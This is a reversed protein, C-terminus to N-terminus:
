PADSAGIETMKAAAERLKSESDILFQASTVIEEGPVVGKLVIVRGGSQLGLEVKRPEFKGPSRVVFVQAESGSRVVAESPIVTVSEQKSAQVTIEVFTEPKLALSPNDFEIRVKVTRTKSEAYPYIYAVQGHFVQGPRAALTMQAEDGVKVWPLEYEFIHAYAWVRSLDAIVYLETAPSVHQGERAGIRTVIGAAPSHIHLTKQPALSAELERIQHEPVDFLELRTRSSQVLEEAGRRIDEVPSNKLTENNKLALVYERQSAVLRPSYLSLLITDKEVQEGTTDVFLEEIWGEVKPHLKTIRTEDYGIRGVARVTHSLSALEAKATRVGINQQVVPDISVTGALEDTGAESAYVPIYDMGMSGKAPVPSTVTPNMPHRYYLPVREPEAPSATSTDVPTSRALWYGATVGAVLLLIAAITLKSSM